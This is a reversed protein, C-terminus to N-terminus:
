YNVILNRYKITTLRKGLTCQMWNRLMKEFNRNKKYKLSVGNKLVVNKYPQNILSIIIKKKFKKFRGSFIELM